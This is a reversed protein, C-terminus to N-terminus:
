SVSAAQRQSVDGCRTALDPLDMWYVGRYGEHISDFTISQGDPMWRPHLDCRLDVNSKDLGTPTQRFIPESRFRGLTCGAGRDLSYVGLWRLHDPTSADPYSDYLIWRGDPSYSCHGDNPFFGADVVTREGTRDNIVVLAGKKEPGTFTWILLEEDNRWHYHSAMDWTPHLRLDSGDTAATLLLTLWHQGPATVFTRLLFMFRSGAPNFTIHNVVLKRPECLVRERALFEALQAYSLVQRHRGTALDMVSVGDEAPALVDAFPDPVEEYGYGPRFDYVRSLNICLAQTGDRAVNAVPLPLVRRAGTGANHACAGFQGDEFVNYLCTDSQGGLWLLMEGQQFNWARTEAFPTFPLDGEAAGPTPLPVHGITAVDEPTPFRDRFLVEQCLHRGQADAAPVDYYGFFFHGRPPTIRRLPANLDTIEPM